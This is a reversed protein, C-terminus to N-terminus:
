DRENKVFERLKKLDGEIWLNFIPIDNKRAIKLATATGGRFAGDKTWCVVFDSPTKLDRGLIQHVNRAHLKRAGEKLFMWNPHITSAMAYADETYLLRSSNANFGKWPVYIEMAGKKKKCGKEFASDAGEAGGSRLVWGLTAFYSAIEEM